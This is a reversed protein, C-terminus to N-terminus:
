RRGRAELRPLGFMLGLAAAPGVEGRFGRGSDERVFHREAPTKTPDHEGGNRGTQHQPDRSVDRGIKRRDGHKPENRQHQIKEREDQYEGAPRHDPGLLRVDIKEVSLRDEKPEHDHGVHPVQRGTGREDAERDKSVDRSEEGRGQDTMALQRLVAWAGLM